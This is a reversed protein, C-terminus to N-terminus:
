SMSGIATILISTISCPDEGKGTVRVLRELHHEEAASPVVSVAECNVPVGKACAQIMVFPWM